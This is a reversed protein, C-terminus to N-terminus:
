GDEDATAMHRAAMLIRDALTQDNVARSLLLAGAGLAITALARDEANMKPHPGTPSREAIEAVIQRLNAEFTARTAQGQRAVEASLAPLVCGEALDDRHTRSLYRRMIERIWPIGELTDLSAFVNERTRTLGRALVEALLHEKNNFHAYFGGVTLNCAQMVRAVGTAAYGDANFGRAAAALIRERTRSKHDSEYRM